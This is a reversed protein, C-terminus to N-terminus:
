VSQLAFATERGALGPGECDAVGVVLLLAVGLGMSFRYPGAYSLLRKLQPSLFSGM